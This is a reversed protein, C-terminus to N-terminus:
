RPWRIRGRGDEGYFRAGDEDFQPVPRSRDYGAIQLPVPGIAGTQELHVVDAYPTTGTTHQACRGDPTTARIRQCEFCKSPQRM